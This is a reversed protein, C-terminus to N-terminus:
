RLLKKLISLLGEKKRRAVPVQMDGTLSVMGERDVKHVHRLNVLHSKHIRYFSHEHLVDEFEKLTQFHAAAQPRRFLVM